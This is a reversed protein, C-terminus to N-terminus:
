GAWYDHERILFTGTGGEIRERVADACGKFVYNGLPCVWSVDNEDIAEVAPVLRYSSAFLFTNVREISDPTWYVYLKSWYEASGQPTAYEIYLTESGPYRIFPEQISGIFDSLWLQTSWLCCSGYILIVLVTLWRKSKKPTKATTEV